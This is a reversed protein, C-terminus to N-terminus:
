KLHFTSFIDIKSRMINRSLMYLLRDAQGQALLVFPTECIGAVVNETGLRSGDNFLFYAICLLFGDKNEL